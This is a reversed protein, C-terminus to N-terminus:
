FFLPTWQTAMADAISVFTKSKDHGSKIKGNIISDTFHRYKTKGTKRCVQINLPAPKIVPLVNNFLDPQLIYNLKPLNKLWLCTRKFSSEHFYYPHITQDPQRFIKHMIGQPNEVCVHKIRCDYLQMFLMAAEIRKLARGEDYWNRMGAYTLYTCPPFAILLDWNDNLVDLVSCQYHNGPIDTPLIDCSWADWGLRSFASRVIGSYECAILVRPMNISGTHIVMARIMM